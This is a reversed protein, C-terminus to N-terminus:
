WLPPLSGQTGKDKYIMVTVLTLAPNAVLRVWM